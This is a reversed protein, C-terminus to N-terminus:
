QCADSLILLTVKRSFDSDHILQTNESFFFKNRLITQKEKTVEFNRELNMELNRYYFNRVFWCQYQLVKPDFMRNVPSLIVRKTLQDLNVDSRIQFIGTVYRNIEGLDIRICFIEITYLKSWSWIKYIGM